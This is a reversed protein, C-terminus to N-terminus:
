EVHARNQRASRGRSRERSTRGESQRPGRTERGHAHIGQCRAIEGLCTRPRQSPFSGPEGNNRRARGGKPGQGGEPPAGRELAV